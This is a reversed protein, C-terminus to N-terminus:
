AAGIFEAVARREDATLASGQAKMIGSELSRLVESASMRRLAAVSPARTNGAADHCATCTQQFIAAGNAAAGHVQDSGGPRTPNQASVDAAFGIMAMFAWSMVRNMMHAENM